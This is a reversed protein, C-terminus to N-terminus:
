QVGMLYKKGPKGNQEDEEKQKRSKGPEAKNQQKAMHDESFNIDQDRRDLM